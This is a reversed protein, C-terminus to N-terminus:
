DEMGKFNVLDAMVEDIESQTYGYDALIEEVTWSRTWDVKPFVQGLPYTGADTNVATFVKSIFRFGDASYLFATFNDKEAQSMIIASFTVRNTGMKKYCVPVHAAILDASSISKEVNWRYADNDKGLPLRGSAIVRQGIIFTTDPTWKEPHYGTDYNDIAMHRRGNNEYFYKTLSEDIYNEIQFEEWSIYRHPKKNIRACHTTVAADKFAGKLSTMSDLDVYKYLDKTTNRNYDNAPLLNIYEVYDITDIITKTINAGIKGYPPNAIILDFKINMYKELEEMIYAGLDAPNDFYKSIQVVECDHYKLVNVFQEDFLNILLVKKNNYSVKFHDRIFKTVEATVVNKRVFVDHDYKGIHNGKTKNFGKNYSDYRAIYTSEALWLQETNLEPLALEIEYTFNEWGEAKIAGDIKESNTESKNDIHQMIRKVICESQGIYIKGDRNRTIKYIGSLSGGKAILEKELDKRTM